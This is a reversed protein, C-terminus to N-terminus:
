CVRVLKVFVQGNRTYKKKKWRCKESKKLSFRLEDIDFSELDLNERILSQIEEILHDQNDDISRLFNDM